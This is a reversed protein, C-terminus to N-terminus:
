KENVTLKYGEIDQILQVMYSVNSRAWQAFSDYNYIYNPYSEIFKDMDELEFTVQFTVKTQNKKKTRM